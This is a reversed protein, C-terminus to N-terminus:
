LAENKQYVVPNNFLYDQAIGNLLIKGDLKLILVDYNGAGFSWTYGAVMYEGDTTQQVDYIAVGYTKSWESASVM